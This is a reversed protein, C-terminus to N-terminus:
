LHLNKVFNVRIFLVCKVHFLDLYVKKIDLNIHGLLILGLKYIRLFPVRSLKNMEVTVELILILTGYFYM